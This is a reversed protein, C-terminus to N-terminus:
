HVGINGKKLLEEVLTVEDKTLKKFVMADGYMDQNDVNAKIAEEAKARDKVDKLPAFDDKLPKLTVTDDKAEVKAVFYYRDSDKGPTLFASDDLAECTIFTVGGIPTLWARYHATSIKDAGDKKESNIYQLFWTHEDLPRLVAVTVTDKDAPDSPVLKWAGTLKDDLKATAADGVPVPLCAFMTLLVAALPVFLAVGLLTRRAPTM